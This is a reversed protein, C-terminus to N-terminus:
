FCTSMSSLVSEIRLDLEDGPHADVTRTTCKPGALLNIEIRLPSSFDWPIDFVAVQKGTVTGLPRRSVQGIAYLRADSFNDNQVHIRIRDEAPTTDSFPTGREVVQGPTACAAIVLLTVLSTFTSKM